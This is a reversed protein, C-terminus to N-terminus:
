LVSVQEQRIIKKRLFSTVGLINEMLEEPNKFINKNM